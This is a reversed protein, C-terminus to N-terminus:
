ELVDMRDWDLKRAMMSTWRERDAMTGAGRIRESSHFQPIYGDLKRVWAGAANLAARTYELHKSVIQAAKVALSDGTAPLIDPSAQREIETMVRQEFAADRADMAKALGADEADALFAGQAKRARFKGLGDASFGANRFAGQRESETLLTLVSAAEKGPVLREQLDMRIAANRLANRKEILAALKKEDALESAAKALADPISMGQKIYRSSRAQTQELLKTIADESLDDKGVAKRVAAVCDSWAM